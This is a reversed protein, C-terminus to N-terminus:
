FKKSIGDKKGKIRIISGFVTNKINIVLIYVFQISILKFKNIHCVCKRLVTGYLVNFHMSFMKVEDHRWVATYKTNKHTKNFLFM